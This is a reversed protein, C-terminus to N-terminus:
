FVTSHEQPPDLIGVDGSTSNKTVNKVAQFGSVLTVFFNM